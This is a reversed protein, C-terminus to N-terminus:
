ATLAFGTYLALLLAALVVLVVLGAYLKGLAAYKARILLALRHAIVVAECNIQEMQVKGWAERYAELKYGAIAEWYMLGRGAEPAAPGAASSLLQAYHLQRPRLCDIAHLVFVFSLAAYAILFGTLWPKVSEPLSTMLHARSMLFFVGANLVGMVVLAYRAKHDALDVVQRGESILEILIRFREFSDPPRESDRRLRAERKRRKRAKKDSEGDAPIPAPLPAGGLTAILEDVAPPATQATDAHGVTM